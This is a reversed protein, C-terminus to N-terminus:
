PLAPCTKTYTENGMYDRWEEPTLNRVSRICAADILDASWLSEVLIRNCCSTALYRGNPSIDVAHFSNDREFRSIERGTLVEWVRATNYGRTTLIYRNDASFALFRVDGDHKLELTQKKSDMDWVRVVGDKGGLALYRGDSSSTIVWVPGNHTLWAAEKWTNTDWVRIGSSEGGTILFDDDPTFQLLHVPSGTEIRKLLLGNFRNWVRVSGDRGGTVMRTTDRSFIVAWVRGEHTVSSIRQGTACDYVDLHSIEPEEAPEHATEGALYTAGLSLARIHFFLGSGQPNLEFRGVEKAVSNLIHIADNSENVAIFKRDPSFEVDTANAYPRSSSIKTHSELDWTTLAGDLSLARITRGDGDFWVNDARDSTELEFSERGTPMKWLQIIGQSDGTILGSGDANFSVTSLHRDSGIRAVEEQTDLDWVSVGDSTRVAVLEGSGFATPTGVQRGTLRLAERPKTVDWISTTSLDAIALYKGDPSLTIEPRLGRYSIHRIRRHTFLDYIEYTYDEDDVPEDPINISVDKAVYRGDGSL